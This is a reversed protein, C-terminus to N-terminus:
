KEFLAFNWDDIGLHGDMSYREHLRTQPIKRNGKRLARHKIKYNNFRYRFKNKAKGVYSAEDCVKYKLLYLEKESNFNLPNSQIKFIEGCPGQTFTATTRISNCVLCTKKGFPEYRGTENTKPVAVRILYDKLSKGNRFWVVPVDPFVKKHEKDPALLLHLEQLIHRINQFVQYYTINFKRKTESTETSKKEKLFTNRSHERDRLIQKRIM